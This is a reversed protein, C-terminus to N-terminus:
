CVTQRLFQGGPFALKGATKRKLLPKEKSSFTATSLQFAAFEQM